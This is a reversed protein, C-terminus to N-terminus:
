ERQEIPYVQSGKDRKPAEVTVPKEPHSDRFEQMPLFKGRNAELATGNQVKGLAANGGVITCHKRLRM